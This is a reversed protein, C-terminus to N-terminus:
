RRSWRVVDGIENEGSTLADKRSMVAILSFVLRLVVLFFGCSFIACVRVAIGCM